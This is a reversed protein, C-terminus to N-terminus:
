FKFMKEIKNKYSSYPKDNLSIIQYDYAWFEDNNKNKWNIILNNDDNLEFGGEVTGEQIGDLRTRIRISIGDKINHNNFISEDKSEDKKTKYDDKKDSDEPKQDNLLKDSHNKFLETVSKKLIAEAKKTLAPHNDNYSYNSSLRRQDLPNAKVQDNFREDEDRFVDKISVINQDYFKRCTAIVIGADKLQANINKIDINKRVFNLVDDSLKSNSKYESSIYVEAFVPHINGPLKNYVQSKVPTLSITFYVDMVKFTFIPKNTKPGDIYEFKVKKIPSEM